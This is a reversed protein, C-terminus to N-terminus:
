NISKGAEAIFAPLKGITGAGIVAIVGKKGATSTVTYEALKQWDESPFYEAKEGCAAALEASGAAGTECWAAFVPVIIVKDAASLEAALRDFYKELRAYRHPQFIVTLDGGPGTLERLASISAAVEAPHHAYDEIIRMGGAIGRCTLRREVGPFEALAAAVDAAQMGFFGAAAIVLAANKRQFGILNPPIIAYEPADPDIIQVNEGLIEQVNEGALAIIHGCNRGFSRFNEMLQERGGVSWDHDDDINPVIGLAPHIFTHTGDSEDVETVFIDGNGSRSQPFNEVEGGILWGTGPDHRFLCWALMATVSTKGHSGSVAATRLCTDAFAALFEGRRYVPIGAAEARVLEPNDASVASSYILCSGSGEPVNEAKHSGSIVAGAAALTRCRRNWEPDSGSVKCGRELMIAALPAMGAGGIGTFHCSTFNRNM